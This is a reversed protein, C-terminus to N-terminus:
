SRGKGADGRRRHRRNPPKCAGDTRAHGPQPRGAPRPTGINDPAPSDIGESANAVAQTLLLAVFLTSIGSFFYKM